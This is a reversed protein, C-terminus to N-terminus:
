KFNELLKTLNEGSNIRSKWYHAYFKFKSFNCEALNIKGLHEEFYKFYEWLTYYYKKYKGKDSTERLVKKIKM